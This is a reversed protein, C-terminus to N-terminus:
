VFLKSLISPLTNTIGRVSETQVTNDNFIQITQTEKGNATSLTLTYDRKTIDPVDVLLVNKDNQFRIINSVHMPKFQGDDLAYKTYIRYKNDLQGGPLFRAVLFDYSGTDLKGAVLYRGHSDISLGYARPDSGCLSTILFGSLDCQNGFTEDPLGASTLKLVTIYKDGCHSSTGCVVVNDDADVQVNYAKDYTHCWTGNVATGDGNPGFTTDRSGDSNIRVVAFDDKAYCDVWIYGGIVIRDKSDIAISTPYDNRYGSIDIVVRGSIDTGFNLDVQGCHNLKVVAINYDNENDLANASVDTSGFVVINDSSDVAVGYAYDDHGGSIDVLVRGCDGFSHDRHGWSTYREVAFDDGDGCKYGAILIRDHRDLALLNPLAKRCYDSKIWTDVYGDGCNFSYDLCGDELLRAISIRDSCEQRVAGIVIRNQSDIAVSFGKYDACGLHLRKRGHHGFHCDLDGNPLYRAVAIKDYCAETYGVVVIRDQYDTIVTEASDDNGCHIDTTVYGIKDDSAGFPVSNNYYVHMVNNSITAKLVDPSIQNYPM